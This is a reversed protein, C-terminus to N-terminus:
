VMLSKATLPAHPSLLSLRHLLLRLWPFLIIAADRKNNKKLNSKDCNEVRVVSFYKQIFWPSM